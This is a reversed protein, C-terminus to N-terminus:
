TRDTNILVNKELGLDGFLRLYIDVNGDKDVEIRQILKKLQANTMQSVDTVDEIQKFTKELIDELKDRKNIQYSVMKFDNELKEIRKRM